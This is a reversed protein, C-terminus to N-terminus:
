ESIEDKTKEENANEWKTLFHNFTALKLSRLDGYGDLTEDSKKKLEDYSKKM